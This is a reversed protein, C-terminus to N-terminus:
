AGVGFTLSKNRLHKVGGGGGTSYTIYIGAVNTFSTGGTASTAFTPYTAGEYRAEPSTTASSCYVHLTTFDASPRLIAGWLHTGSTLAEDACVFAQFSRGSIDTRATATAIIANPTSEADPSSMLAMNCTIPSGLVADLECSISSLTGNAPMVGIYYAVQTNSPLNDPVTGPTTNGFDAM